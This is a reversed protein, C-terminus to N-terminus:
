ANAKQVLVVNFDGGGAELPEYVIVNDADVIEKITYVGRNLDNLDENWDQYTIFIRDRPAIGSVIWDMTGGSEIQYVSGPGITFTLTEADGILEPDFTGRAILRSGHVGWLKVDAPINVNGIRIAWEDDPSPNSSKVDIVFRWHTSTALIAAGITSWEDPRPDRGYSDADRVITAEEIHGIGGAGPAHITHQYVGTVDAPNLPMAPSNETLRSLVVKDLETGPQLLSREDDLNDLRPGMQYVGAQQMVPM